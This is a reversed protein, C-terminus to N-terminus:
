FRFGGLKEIDKREKEQNVRKELQRDEGSIEGGQYEGSISGLLLASASARGFSSLLLATSYGLAKRADQTETPTAKPRKRTHGGARGQIDGALGLM